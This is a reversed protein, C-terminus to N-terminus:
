DICGKYEKVFM